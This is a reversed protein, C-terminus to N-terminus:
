TSGLGEKLRALLAALGLADGLWGAATRDAVLDREPPTGLRHLRALARYSSAAGRAGPTRARGGRRAGVRKMVVALAAVLTARRTHGHAIHALEHALMARLGAEELAASTLQIDIFAGHASFCLVAVDISGDERPRFERQFHRQYVRAEFL